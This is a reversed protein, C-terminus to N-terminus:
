ANIPPRYLASSISLPPASDSAFVSNGPLAITFNVIELPLYVANSGTGSLCFCNADCCDLECCDDTEVQELAGSTIFSIDLQEADECGAPLAIATAQVVVSLMLLSTVFFRLISHIM